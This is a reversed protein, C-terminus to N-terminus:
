RGGAPEEKKEALETARVEIVLTDEKAVLAWSKHVASRDPAVLVPAEKKLLEALKTADVATGDLRYAKVESLPLVVQLSQHSVLPRLGSFTRSGDRARESTMRYRMKTRVVDLVVGKGDPRLRAVGPLPGEEPLGTREVPMGYEIVPYKQPEKRAEKLWVQELEAVDAFSYKEKAAKDWGEKMGQKVFALFTKRDKREVLFRTLSHGEAYLAMVDDPFETLKLLRSLPILRGKEIITERLLRGHRQQEEDDESMVAGGEDAWRPVPSGFYDALVTHTVEHPLASTLLRELSGELHMDRREVKGDAYTFATAGGCGESVIKITVPCRNEWAPLEEGLWLVAQEKRHREAADGILRAVRANPATVTFNRTRVTAAAQEGVPAPAVSVAPPPTPVPPEGASSQYGLALAGLAAAAVLAMVVFRLKEIFMAQCVGETLATVHSPVASPAVLGRLVSGALAPPLSAEASGALAAALVGASLTVGRRVLRARLQDRARALRTALTGPPCGLHRAAEAHTMGELYCLVVPARYKAPLSRIADDLVPRLDRWVLDDAASAAPLDTLPQERRRPALVRARLAVRRAVGHLWPGLQEPRRLSDAKRVLLLFVAQFADDADHSHPLLRRCVALVMPGHRRVLAAFAEGDRQRAFRELLAADREGDLKRLCRLLPLLQGAPM